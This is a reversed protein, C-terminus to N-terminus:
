LIGKVFGYMSLKDGISYCQHQQKTNCEGVTDENSEGALPLLTIELGEHVQWAM